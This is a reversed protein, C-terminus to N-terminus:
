LKYTNEDNGGNQAEHWTNYSEKLGSFFGGFMGTNQAHQKAKERAFTSLYKKLTEEATKLLFKAIHGVLTPEPIPKAPLCKGKSYFQHQTKQRQPTSGGIKKIFVKGCYICKIEPQSEKKISKSNM